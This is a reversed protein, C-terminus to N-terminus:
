RRSASTPCASAHRRRGRLRRPLHAEFGARELLRATLADFAGPVVLVDGRALRDRLVRGPSAASVREMRRRQDPLLDQVQEADRRYVMMKRRFEIVVQGRQNIGRSRIGVIGAYPRSASERLELM